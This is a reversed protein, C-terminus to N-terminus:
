NTITTISPFRLFFYDNTRPFEAYKFIATNSKITITFYNSFTKLDRSWQVVTNSPIEASILAAFNNTSIVQNTGSPAWHLIKLESERRVGQPVWPIATVGYYLNTTLRNNATVFWNSRTEGIQKQTQWANTTEWIVYDFTTYNTDVHEWQMYIQGNIPPQVAWINLLGLVILLPIFLKKM